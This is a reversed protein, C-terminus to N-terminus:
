LEDGFEQNGHLLKSGYAEDKHMGKCSRWHTRRRNPLEPVSLDSISIATRLKTTISFFQKCITSLFEFVTATIANSFSIGVM